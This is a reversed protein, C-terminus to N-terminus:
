PPQRDKPVMRSVPARPEHARHALPEEASGLVDSLTRLLGLWGSFEATAPGDAGAGGTDSVSRLRGVPPDTQDLWIRVEM